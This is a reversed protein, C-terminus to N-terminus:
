KFEELNKHSNIERLAANEDYIQENNELSSDTGFSSVRRRKQDEEGGSLVNVELSFLDNRNVRRRKKSTDEISNQKKLPSVEENENREHIIDELDIHIQYDGDVFNDEQYKKKKAKKRLKDQEEYKVPQTMGGPIEQIECYNDVLITRRM